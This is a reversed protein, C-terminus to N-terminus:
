VGCRRSKPHSGRVVQTTQYRSKYLDAGRLQRGDGCESHPAGTDAVMIRYDTLCQFRVFADSANRRRGLQPLVHAADLRWGM